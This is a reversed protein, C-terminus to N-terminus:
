ENRIKDSINCIVMKPTIKLHKNKKDESCRINYMNNTAKIINSKLTMINTNNKKAIITYVNNELNSMVNIYNTQNCIFEIADILYITGINSINYGLKILEEKIRKRFM